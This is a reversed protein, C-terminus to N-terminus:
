RAKSESTELMLTFDIVLYWGCHDCYDHSCHIKKDCNPCDYYFKM